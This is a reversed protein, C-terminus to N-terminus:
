AMFTQNQHMKTHCKEVSLLVFAGYYKICVKYISKGHWSIGSQLQEM